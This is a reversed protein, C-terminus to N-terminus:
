MIVVTNAADRFVDGKGEKGSIACADRYLNESTPLNLSSCKM